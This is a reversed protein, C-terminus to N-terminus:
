EDKLACEYNSPDQSCRVQKLLKMMEPDYYGEKTMQVRAERMLRVYGPKVSEHLNLWFKDPIKAETRDVFNFAPMLQKSIVERAISGMGAPFKNRQM